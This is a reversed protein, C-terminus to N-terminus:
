IIRLDKIYGFETQVCHQRYLRHSIFERDPDIFDLISDAYTQDSATFTIVQFM